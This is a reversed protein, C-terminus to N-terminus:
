AARHKLPVKPLLSFYRNLGVAAIDQHQFSEIVCRRNANAGGQELVSPLGSGRRSSGFWLDRFRKVHGGAAGDKHTRCISGYGPPADYNAGYDTTSPIRPPGPRGPHGPHWNAPLGGPGCCWETPTTAPPWFHADETQPAEELPPSTPLGAPTFVPPMGHDFILEPPEIAPLEPSQPISPQSLSLTSQKPPPAFALRNGCRGRVLHAGDSLILEGKPVHITHTTWHVSNASRYSAYVNLAANLLTAHSRTTVIDRYHQAVM